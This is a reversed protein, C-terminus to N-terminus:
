EVQFVQIGYIKNGKSFSAFLKNNYMRLSKFKKSKDVYEHIKEPKGPEKIDYVEITKGCSIYLYNRDIILDVAKGETKINNTKLPYPPLTMNLVTLGKIDNALYAISGKILIKNVDYDILYSKPFAAQKFGTFPEKFEFIKLGEDEGSIVVYPPIVQINKVPFDKITNRSVMKINNINSFDVIELGMNKFGLLAFNEFIELSYVDQHRYYTGLVYPMTPDSVNLIKLGLAGFSLYVTDNVAKVCYATGYVKKRSRKEYETYVSFEKINNIDSIDLFHLGSAGLPLYIVSNNIDFNSLEFSKIKASYEAIPFVHQAISVTTTILLFLTGLINIKLKM